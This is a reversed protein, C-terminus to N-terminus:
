NTVSLSIYSWPGQPFDQARMRGEGRVRAGLNSWAGMLNTAALVQYHVDPAAFWAARVAQTSTSLAGWQLRSTSDYPNTGFRAEEEDSYGDGDSDGSPRAVLLANLHSHGFGDPRMTLTAVPGPAVFSGILYTGYDNTQSGPVASSSVTAPTGTSVIMVRDSSGTRQDNYFFQLRYTEGAVLNTVTLTTTGSGGGLTLTRILEDFAANGTGAMTGLGAYVSNAFGSGLNYPVFERGNVTLANTGGNIAFVPTGGILNGAGTTPQAAGGNEWAVSLDTPPPPPGTVLIANFHSNGFGNPRLNLALTAGPAIFSGIVHTGYDDLQPGPTASAPLNASPNTHVLMVRDSSTARQDNFLVQIRYTEGSVLGTIPVNTVGTGGGYTMSGILEDFEEDGTSVMTNTYVNTTFGMGLNYPEFYRDGVTVPAPGGNRAFIVNGTILSDPGLTAQAGGGNEWTIPAFVGNAPPASTSGGVLDLGTWFSGNDGYVSRQAVMLRRLEALTAAHAPNTALNVLEHPDANLDFLQTTRAGSVRYEILKMGDHILSRMLEIYGQYAVSRHAALTGEILPRLSLGDVQGTPLSAGAFDAITPYLDHMYVLSDNRGGAPVGPGAVILPIRLSHEYVNQKGLLGHAGRALGHDSTFLILTNTTWGRDALAQVIKGVQDDMQRVMGHYTANDNNVLQQVLPRPMLLEDRISMVGHDFLPQAMYNTPLPLISNTGSLYPTRWSAPAQFPDHPANFAVYLFFRNTGNYTKIFNTATGGVLDTAHAGASNSFTSLTGNTLNRTQFAGTYGATSLFGPTINRGATFSRQLGPNENHWKGAIYAHYGAARMTQGLTVRNTLNDASRWLNQGNFLQARSSVCVAANRSGHYRANAFVFGNSALSDLNPTLLSSPAIANISDWRQDDSVILVVNPPAAGVRCLPLTVLLLLRTLWKNM